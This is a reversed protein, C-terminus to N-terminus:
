KAAGQEKLWNARNYRYDPFEKELTTQGLLLRRALAAVQALEAANRVELPVILSVGTAWNLRERNWSLNVDLNIGEATLRESISRL